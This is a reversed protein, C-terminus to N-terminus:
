FQLKPHKAGCEPCKDNKALDYVHGCKDCKVMKSSVNVKADDMTAQTKTKKIINNNQKTYGNELLTRLKM